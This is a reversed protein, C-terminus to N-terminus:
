VVGGHLGVHFCAPTSGAIAPTLSPACTTAQAECYLIHSFLILKAAIVPYTLLESVPQVSDRNICLLNNIINNICTPMSASISIKSSKLIVCTHISMMANILYTIHYCLDFNDM